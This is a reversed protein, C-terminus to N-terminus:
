NDSAYANLTITVVEENDPHNEALREILILAKEKNKGSQKLISNYVGIACNYVLEVEEPHKESM